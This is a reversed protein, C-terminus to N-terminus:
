GRLPPLGKEAKAIMRRLFSKVLDVEASSFGELIDEEAARARSLIEIFLERGPVALTFGDDGDPEIWGREAMAKFASEEPALGTHDLRKRIEQLSASGVMSLLGMVAYQAESVGHSQWYERSSRSFLVHARNLLYPVFDDAYRASALEEETLKEATPVATFRGQHFLLPAKDRKEFNVVEGVFITHDGGEYRHCTRCEFHAACDSILPLGGHGETLQLGNFRNELKSAFRSALEQQDAALIHIAFGEAQEFAAMSRASKDLSWLVLPPDLSVSNYSSVTLGVPQGHADRTTVITVGTAFRGLADRFDSSDFLSM